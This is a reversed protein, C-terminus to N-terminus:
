PDRPQIKIRYRFQELELLAPEVICWRRRLLAPEALAGPQVEAMGESGAGVRLAELEDPCEDARVVAQVPM